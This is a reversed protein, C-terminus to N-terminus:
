KSNQFDSSQPIIHDNCYVHLTLVTIIGEKYSLFCLNLLNKLTTCRTFPFFWSEFGLTNDLAYYGHWSFRVEKRRRLGEGWAKYTLALERKM